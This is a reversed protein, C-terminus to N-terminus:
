VVSSHHYVVSDVLINLNDYHSLPKYIFLLVRPIFLWRLAGARLSGTFHERPLHNYKNYTYSRSM